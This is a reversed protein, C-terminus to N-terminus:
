KPSLKGSKDRLYGRAWRDAELIDQLTDGGGGFADLTREVTRVIGSFPIEGALFASVAEENAANLVAPRGHGAAGAERALRVSPFRKEDLAHFELGSLEELNTSPVADPLRDPYCLAVSIPLRMDPRGLQAKLSGDVFEVVSHVVSQPHICVEVQELPIGFLHHAEIVELGKNMLTASDVTVKPGMSWKPHNLAQEVTVTDLDLEPHAWFPGGSATIVLRRVSERREGWLCQWIASHESDVPRIGRHGAAHMVLDGAMVLVEKTALAVENGAKLAALTPALARAGPIAVVVVDCRPDTVMEEVRADFDAEGAHGKVVYDAGRGTSRRGETLGFLRLRAPNRDILDLTQQGISGTAGLVAVNVPRTIAAPSV